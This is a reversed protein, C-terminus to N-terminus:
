WRVRAGEPSRVDDGELRSATGSVPRTDIPSFKVRRPPLSLHGLSPRTSHVCQHPFLSRRDDCTGAQARRRCGGRQPSGLPEGLVYCCVGDHICRVHAPRQRCLPLTLRSASGPVAFFCVFGEEPTKTRLLGPRPRPARPVNERASSFSSFRGCQYLVKDCFDLNSVMQNRFPSRQKGNGRATGHCPLPWPSGATRPAASFTPAARANDGTALQGLTRGGPM